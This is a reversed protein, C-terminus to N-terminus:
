NMNVHTADDKIFHLMLFPAECSAGFFVLTPRSENKPISM